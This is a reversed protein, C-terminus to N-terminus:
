LNYYTIFVFYKWFTWMMVAHQKMINQCLSLTLWLTIIGLYKVLYTFTNPFWFCVLGADHVVIFFRSFAADDSLPIPSSKSLPFAIKFLCIKLYYYYNKNIIRWLGISVMTWNCKVSSKLTTPLENWITPKAVSFAHENSVFASVMTFVITIKSVDISTDPSTM